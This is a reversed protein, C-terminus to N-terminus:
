QVLVMRNTAVTKNDVKLQYLYIGSPQSAKQQDIGTWVATYSGAAMREDVLTAVERGSVDYIVVQVHASRNISYPINTAPNFPNPYNQGLEFDSVTSPQDGSIATVAPKKFRYIKGDFACIYLEQDRDVGFSAINLGTDRVLSNVAPNVGDYELAWIQGFVYDAYIYKGVLDPISNGRYVYGGTISIGVSHSYEHIPLTLGNQNCSSANYCHFGEMTKWGYNNGKEIIDVEEWQGQGVDGAWLWGTVPDFSFRWTNRLGYAFIEPQYGTSDIFPNDPPIGYTSGAPVNDVDIRLMSGLLTQPRQGHNQPDGGSGGDGTAIYLYGDNPGFALQGANHNEFPREIRMLILESDPSAFNSDSDSVQYRAIITLNPGSATYNVYFYGNSAYDPHFALGLLGEENFSDDVKGTINLFASKSTTLSDNTFVSIIGSQEVVFLRNSGDPAHQLDVPRSFSLSPFAQVIEQQQAFIPATM